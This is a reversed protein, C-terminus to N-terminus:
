LNVRSASVFYNNTKEEGITTSEGHGPYVRFEDPLQYLKKQISDILDQKNCGPLDVRGVSGKFLVDGGFIIQHNREIIAIHGPAHGPVEMIELDFEGFSILDGEKIFQDPVPCDRFPVNWLQAAIPGRELTPLEKEHALFPINFRRVLSDIGLIHDIHCHTNLIMKPTYEHQSIFDFMVADEERNSMGPDIIICEKSRNSLVYTNESFMNFTFLHLPM